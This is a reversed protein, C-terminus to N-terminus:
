HSVTFIPGRVAKKLYLPIEKEKKKKEKKKEEESNL